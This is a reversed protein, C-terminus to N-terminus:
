MPPKLQEPPVAKKFTAIVWRHGDPDVLTATRDGWFQEKPEEVVTSGAARAQATTRDVDAVYVYLSTRPTAAASEREPPSEPGLMIVSDRHTVEAHMPKGDAGPVVLRRKFGFAREYHDLAAAVDRVALYPNVAQMGPAAGAVARPPAPRGAPRAARAARARRRASGTHATPKPTARRPAARKRRKAM